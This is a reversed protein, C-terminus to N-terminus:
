ICDLGCVKTPKKTTTTKTTPATKAQVPAKSTTTTKTTPLTASKATTPATKAVTTPKTTTTKAVTAPKTTAGPVPSTKATTTTTTPAPATKATTTTAPSTKAIATPKTTTTTAPATKAITAPKTTTTTTPSTKAITGAKTTTSPQTTAKAITAPKTTTQSKAVITSKTAGGAKTTSPRTVSPKTVKSQRTTPTTASPSELMAVATDPKKDDCQAAPPQNFLAAMRNQSPPTSMAAVKPPTSPTSRFLLSLILGFLIGGAFIAVGRRTPKLRQIATRPNARFHDAESRVTQWGSSATNHARRWAKQAADHARERIQNVRDQWNAGIIAIPETTISKEDAPDPIATSTPALQAPAAAAAAEQFPAPSSGRAVQVVPPIANSGLPRPSPAPIPPLAPASPREHSDAATASAPAAFMPATNVGTKSAVPIAARLPTTAAGTTKPASPMAALMPATTAGTKSAIPVATGTKSAAPKPRAATATAPKPAIAPLVPVVPPTARRAPMAPGRIPGEYRATANHTREEIATPVALLGSESAARMEQTISKRMEGADTEEVEAAAIEATKRPVRMGWQQQTEPANRTRPAGPIQTVETNEEEELRRLALLRAHIAESSTTLQSFGIYVGRRGFRNDDNTWCDLVVGLGRLMPTGDTLELSFACESNPTIVKETPAFVAEDECYYCYTKVFEDENAYAFRV